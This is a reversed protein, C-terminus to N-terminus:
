EACSHPAQTGARQLKGTRVSGGETPDAFLSLDHYSGSNLVSQTCPEKYVPTASVGLCGQSTSIMITVM